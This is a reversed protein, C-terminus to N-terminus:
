APAVVACIAERLAPHSAAAMSTRTIIQTSAGGLDSVAGGAERVCVALAGVDWPKLVPDVAADLVGRSVLAYQVCDGVPRIRCSRALEALRWPGPPRILDSHRFSTLGVRAETLPRAPAVRVRRPTAGDRRLWCGHGSAAYTLERLATLRICGFVPEGDILLSLLTGFMPVGLVYSATGDIPDITWCRGRLALEGGYEEGLLADGPFAEALARRLVREAGRDAATVESGDAKHRTRVRHLGGLIIADSRPLMEAVAALTRRLEAASLRPGSARHLRPARQPM